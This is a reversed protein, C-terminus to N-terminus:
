RTTRRPVISLDASGLTAFGNFGSATIRVQFNTGTVDFPVVMIGSDAPALTRTLVQGTELGDRWATFTWTVSQGGLTQQVLRRFTAYGAASEVPSSVLTPAYTSGGTGDLAALDKVVSLDDLQVIKGGHAQAGLLLIM